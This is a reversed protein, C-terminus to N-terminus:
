RAVGKGRRAIGGWIAEAIAVMGRDGPHAAVGAHEYKRESRAYNKEEKDLGKLDVFEGGAEVCAERIIGDKIENGWFSSRVIITPKGPHDLKKLLERCAKGYAAKGEETDPTTVNEGIAIIILDARFDIVEKLKEGINYSAYGREFDAINRVLAEPKGGGEKEIRKLLVHVFDKEEASAAMGWNHLWGIKELPGHLTISNGLIVVRGCAVKGVHLGKEGEAAFGISGMVLVGVLIGWCCSKMTCRM